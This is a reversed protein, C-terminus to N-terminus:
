VTRTLEPERVAWHLALAAREQQARMPTANAELQTAAITAAVDLLMEQDVLMWCAELLNEPSNTNQKTAEPIVSLTKV